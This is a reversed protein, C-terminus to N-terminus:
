RPSGDEWYYRGTGADYYYYRGARDDYYQRHNAPAAGCNGDERCGKYAGAAGGVAAGLLAGSAADGHGVNNGIVAGANRETNGTTTCAAALLGAGAIAVCPKLFKLSLM